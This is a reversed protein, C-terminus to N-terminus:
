AVMRIKIKEAHLFLWTVDEFMRVQEHTKRRQTLSSNQRRRHVPDMVLKAVEEGVSKRWRELGEKKLIGLVTTISPYRIGDEKEYFRHGDINKAKLVPINKDLQIHEKLNEM